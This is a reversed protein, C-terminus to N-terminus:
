RRAGTLPLPAPPRRELVGADPADIVLDSRARAVCPLIWGEAKEEATLGPWAVTYDVRGELLLCKCTRCAGNRCSSPLRIGARAAELLVAADPDCEFRWGSPELAVTYRNAMSM